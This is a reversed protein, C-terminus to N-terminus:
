VLFGFCNLQLLSCVKKPDTAELVSLLGQSHAKFEVHECLKKAIGNRHYNPHVGLLQLHWNNLHVDPGHVADLAKEYSDMFYIWWNRSKDSLKSLFTNWGCREKQEATRIALQGPGFWIAVGVIRNGEQTKAVWLEGDLLGAKAYCLLYQYMIDKSNDCGSLFIQWEFADGLVQVVEPLDSDEKILELYTAVPVKTAVESM